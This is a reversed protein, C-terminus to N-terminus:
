CHSSRVSTSTSVPLPAKLTHMGLSSSGSSQFSSHGSHGSSGSRRWYKFAKRQLGRVYREARDGSWEGRYHKRGVWWGDGPLRDRGRVLLVALEPGGNERARADVEGVVRCLLRMRPRTFQMGLLLLADSYSIDRGDKACQILLQEVTDVDM